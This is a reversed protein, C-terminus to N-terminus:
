NGLKAHLQENPGPYRSTGRLKKTAIARTQCHNYCSWCGYCKKQDVVPAPINTIAGYPCVKSCTGCNNCLSHDICINGMMKRSINRPIYPFLNYLVGSKFRQVERGAAIDLIKSELDRIFLNFADLQHQKPFDANSLGRAILPPYNEPTQLAYGAIVKFGKKEAMRKLIHLTQGNINGYTNFVFAPKQKQLPLNKIFEMIRLSPAFFDAFAAFGIIQYSDLDPLTEKTIDFLTFSVSKLHRSIFECALKTNGTTSFYCILGKM